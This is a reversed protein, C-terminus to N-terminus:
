GNSHQESYGARTAWSWGEGKESGSITFRHEQGVGVGQMLRDSYKSKNM